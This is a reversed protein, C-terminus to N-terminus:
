NDHTKPIAVIKKLNDYLSFCKVIKVVKAESTSTLSFISGLVGLLVLFGILVIVVYNSWDMQPKTEQPSYFMLNVFPNFTTNTANNYAGNLQDEVMKAYQNTKLEEYCERPSCLGINQYGRTLKNLVTM